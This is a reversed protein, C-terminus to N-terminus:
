SPLAPNRILCGQADRIWVGAHLATRIVFSARTHQDRMADPNHWYDRQSAVHFQDDTLGPNAEVFAVFEQNIM